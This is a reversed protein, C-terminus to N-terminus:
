KKLAQSAAKEMGGFLRKGHIWALSASSRASHTELNLSPALDNPVTIRSSMSALFARQSGWPTSEPLGWTVTGWGGLGGLPSLPPLVSAVAAM